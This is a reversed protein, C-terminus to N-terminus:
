QGNCGTLPNQDSPDMGNVVGDAAVTTSNDM